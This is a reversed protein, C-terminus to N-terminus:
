SPAPPAYGGGPADHKDAPMFHNIALMILLGIFGLILGLVLGIVGRGQKQGIWYGVAACILGIVIGSAVVSGEVALLAGLM